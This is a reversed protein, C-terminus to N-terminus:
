HQNAVKLEDQRYLCAEIQLTSGNGWSVVGKCHILSLQRIQSLQRLLLQWSINAEVKKRGLSSGDRKQSGKCHHNEMKFSVADFHVM